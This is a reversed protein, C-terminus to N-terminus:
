ILLPLIFMNYSYSVVYSVIALIGAIFLNKDNSQRSHIIFLIWAILDIIGYFNVTSFVFMLTTVISVPLFRFLITYLYGSLTITSISYVIMWLIGSIKLYKNFRQENIKGYKYILIGFTILFPLPRILGYFIVYYFEFFLELETPGAIYYVPLAFPVVLFIINIVGIYYLLGPKEKEELNTKSSKLIFYNLIIFLCAHIIKPITTSILYLYNLYQFYGFIITM